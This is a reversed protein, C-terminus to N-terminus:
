KKRKLIRILKPLFAKRMVEVYLNSFEKELEAILPYAPKAPVHHKIKGKRGALPDKLLPQKM